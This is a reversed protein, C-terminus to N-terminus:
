HALWWDRALIAGILGVYGAAVAWLIIPRRSMWRLIPLAWPEIAARRFERRAYNLREIDPLYPGYDKM